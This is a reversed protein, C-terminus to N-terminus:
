YVFYFVEQIALYTGKLTQFSIFPVVHQLKKKNLAGQEGFYLKKLLISFCQQVSLINRCLLYVEAPLM